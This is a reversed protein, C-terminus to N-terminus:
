YLLYSVLMLSAWLSVDDASMKPSLLLCIKVSLSSTPLKHLHFELHKHLLYESKVILDLFENLGSKIKVNYRM